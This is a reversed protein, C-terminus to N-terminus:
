ETTTTTTTVLKRRAYEVLLQCHRRTQQKLKCSRAM